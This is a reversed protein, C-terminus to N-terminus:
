DWPTSWHRIRAVAIRIYGPDQEIGVFIRGELMAAAGTTGSGAFPDLVIGGAPCTLAILWRMVALPKITPHNNRVLTPLANRSSFIDREVAPLDDCGAERETRSAKAGYFFRSPKIHPRSADLAKMPCAAGCRDDLCGDHHSLLLNAPWREGPNGPRRRTAEIGLAGTGYAAQNQALTGSLPARALLIPEYAPKLATGLGGPLRRSKPVGQAHLWMIVDRIELGADEVGAVLRHFTRPAGFAILYGGPKLLRRCEAAWTTTWRSFAAGRGPRDWVSGVIGIGYPPDTIVVDVSAEPLKPLVALTDDCAITWRGAIDSHLEARM